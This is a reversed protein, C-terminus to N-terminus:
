SILLYIRDLIIRISLITMLNSNKKTHLYPLTWLKHLTPSHQKEICNKSAGRGSKIWQTWGGGLASRKECRLPSRSVRTRQHHVPLSWHFPVSPLRLATEGTTEKGDETARVNEDLSLYTQTRPLMGNIVLNGRMESRVVRPLTWSRRSACYRECWVWDWKISYNDFIRLNPLDLFLIMDLRPLNLSCVPAVTMYKLIAIIWIFTRGFLTSFSQSSHRITAM